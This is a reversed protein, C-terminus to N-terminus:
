NEKVESLEKSRATATAVAHILMNRLGHSELEAIASITTGGPTTVEDKLIAPHKGTEIVLKAAGLVTQASLSAAITRPIGQKVGADTLAEIIMYIYAPGSGSLGTIADMLYEPVAEVSGVAEFVARASNLDEESAFDGACIATAGEDVLAPTNPMTRVVPLNLEFREQLTQTTIGALVSIILTEETIAAKIEKIVKIVMQPKVALIIITADKVTEVNDSSTKIGPFQEELAKLARESRRSASIQGADADNGKLLGGIIARGMNGAGIVAIKHNSLLRSTGM